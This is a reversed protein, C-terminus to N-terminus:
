TTESNTKYAEDWIARIRMEYRHCITKYGMLDRGFDRYDELDLNLSLLEIWSKYPVQGEGVFQSKWLRKLLTTTDQCQMETLLLFVNIDSIYRKLSEIAEDEGSFDIDRRYFYSQTLTWNHFDRIYYKKEHTSFVCYKLNLIPIVNDQSIVTKRGALTYFQLISWVKVAFYEPKTDDISCFYQFGNDDTLLNM